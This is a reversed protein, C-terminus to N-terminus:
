ISSVWYVKLPNMLMGTYSHISNKPCFRWNRRPTQPNWNPTIENSGYFRNQNLSPFDCKLKTICPSLMNLNLQYLTSTAILKINLPDCWIITMWTPLNVSLKWGTTLPTRRLLTSHCWSLNHLVSLSTYCLEIVVSVNLEMKLRTTKNVQPTCNPAHVVGLYGVSVMWAM